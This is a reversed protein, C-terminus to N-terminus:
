CNEPLSSTLDKSLSKKKKDIQNMEPIKKMGVKNFFNFCKNVSSISSMTENASQKAITIKAESTPKEGANPAKIIPEIIASVLSASCISCRTFGTLSKNPATKKTDTPISILGSVKTSYAIGTISKVNIVM